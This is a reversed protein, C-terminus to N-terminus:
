LLHDRSYGRHLWRELRFCVIMPCRVKCESFFQLRKMKLCIIQLLFMESCRTPQPIIHTKSLVVLQWMYEERWAGLLSLWPLTLNQFPIKWLLTEAEDLQGARALIDVMCFFHDMTQSVCDGKMTECLICKAEDILGSHSCASLVSTLAISDPIIGELMMQHLYSLADAGHGSQAFSSVLATWSVVTRVLLKDFEAQADLLLNCKAYMDVLGNGVFIDGEMGKNVIEIHLQQGWTLCGVVGCVCLSSVYTAANPSIRELQM